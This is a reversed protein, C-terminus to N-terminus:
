PHAIILVKKEEEIIRKVTVARNKLVGIYCSLCHAGTKM